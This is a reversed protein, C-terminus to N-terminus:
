VGFYWFLIIGVSERLSYFILNDNMLPSDSSVGIPTIGNFKFMETIRRLHFNDSVIILNKYDMKNYISDRVFIVQESTSRTNNEAIIVSDAVERNILFAKAVESESLRGPTNSGTVIFYKIKDNRYLSLAKLIRERLVPSPRNGSWVAAGFIIAADYRVEENMVDYNSPYYSFVYVLVVLTIFLISIFTTFISRILKKNKSTLIFIIYSILFLLLCIIIIPVMDKYLVPFIITTIILVLISLILLFLFILNKKDIHNAKIFCIVILITIISFHILNLTNSFNNLNNISIAYSQNEYRIVFLLSFIALNLFLMLLVGIKKGSYNVRNGINRINDFNIKKM